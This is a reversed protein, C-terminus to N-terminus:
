RPPELDYGLQDALAVLEPSPALGLERTTSSGSTTRTNTHRSIRALAAEVAGDDVAVGVAALLKSTQAADLDELRYPVYVLDLNRAARAATNNWDVWYRAARAAEDTETFVEPCYRRLFAVFDSRRRRARQRGDRTTLRTALERVGRARAVQWRSRLDRGARSGEESFFRIEVLSAVVAAPHRTQHLVVTGPPLENLFPVALWSSDGREDSFGEFRESFPTFLAEHTCSVGLESFLAATYGTGSRACGTVIFHPADDSEM